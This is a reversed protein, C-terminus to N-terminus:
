STDPSFNPGTMCRLISTPLRHRSCASRSRPLSPSQLLSLSPPLYSPLPSSFAEFYLFSIINCPYLSSYYSYCLLPNTFSSTIFSIPLPPAQHFIDVFLSSTFLNIPHPLVFLHKQTRVLSTMMLTELTAATAQAITGGGGQIFIIHM